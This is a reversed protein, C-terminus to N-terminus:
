TWRGNPPNSANLRIGALSSIEDRLAREVPIREVSSAGVFGVARSREMVYSVAESSKLPGGHCFPLLDPRAAMAPALIDNVAEAAADLNVANGPRGTLGGETLGVHAVVADVGAAAFAVADEPSFAYAMTFLGQSAARHFMEVENKLGLGIAELDRRFNGDIRGVTPFNIVGSFGLRSVRDLLRPMETTPDSAFLGAVVPVQKVAPLVDREGIDCTLANANAVPLFAVTSPLGNTRFRGSNYVCILDAGAIEACKAVLGSGAGVALVAAGASLKRRLGTVVVNRETRTAM